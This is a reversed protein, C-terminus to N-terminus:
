LISSPVHMLPSSLLIGLIEVQKSQLGVKFDGNHSTFMSWFYIDGYVEASLVETQWVTKLLRM